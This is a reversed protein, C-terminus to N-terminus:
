LALVGIQATELDMFELRFEIKSNNRTVDLQLIKMEQIHSLSELIEQKIKATLGPIM